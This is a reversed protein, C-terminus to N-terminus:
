YTVTVVVTDSYAGPPPTTQAPVRGYVRIGQVAGSGASTASLGDSLLGWVQSRAADQYLQYGVRNGALDQMRRTSPSNGYIGYGLGVNFVSGATCTVDIRSTADVAQTLVGHTGFDLDGALVRCDPPVRARVNFSFTGTRDVCLLLINCTTYDVRVDLPNRAFASSYYVSAHPMVSNQGGPIRAYIPVNTGTTTLLNLVSAGSLVLPSGAPGGYSGGFVLSRAADQYLQYSLGTATQPNTMRRLGGNMGAGGEGLHVTMSISSLLGLFAACKININGVGLTPASGLVDVPEMVIDSGAFTCSQAQALGASGLLMLGLMVLLRLPRIM